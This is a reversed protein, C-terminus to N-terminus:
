FYRVGRPATRSGLSEKLSAIEETLASIKEELRSTDTVSGSSRSSVPTQPSDLHTRLAEVIIHSIPQGTDTAAQYLEDKLDEPISASIRAM